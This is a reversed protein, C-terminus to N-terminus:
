SGYRACGVSGTWKWLFGNCLLHALFGVVIPFGGVVVAHEDVAYSFVLVAFLVEHYLVRPACVVFVFAYPVGRFCEYGVLCHVDEDVLIGNGLVDSLFEADLLGASEKVFLDFPLSVLDKGKKNDAGKVFDGQAAM